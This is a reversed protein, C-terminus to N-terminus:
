WGSPCNARFWQQMRSFETATMNGAAMRGSMTYMMYGNGRGNFTNGMIGMRCLKEKGDPSMKNIDFAHAVGSLLICSFCFAPSFIKKLM